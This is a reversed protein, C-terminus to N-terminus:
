VPMSGVPARSTDLVLLGFTFAEFAVLLNRSSRAARRAASRGWREPDLAHSAGPEFLHMRLNDTVERVPTRTDRGSQSGPSRVAQNMGTGRARRLILTPPVGVRTRRFGCQFPLTLTESRASVTPGTVALLQM